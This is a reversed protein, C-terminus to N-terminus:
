CILVRSTSHQQDTQTDARGTRSYYRNLFNADPQKTRTNKHNIQNIKMKNKFVGMKLPVYHIRYFKLFYAFAFSM